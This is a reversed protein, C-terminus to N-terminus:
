FCFASILHIVPFPLCVPVLAENVPWDEKVTLLVTDAHREWLTAPDSLQFLRHIIHTVFPRKLPDPKCQAKEDKTREENAAAPVSASLSYFLNVM